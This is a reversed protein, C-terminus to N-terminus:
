SAVEVFVITADGHGWIPDVPYWIGGDKVHQTQDLSALAKGNTARCSSM